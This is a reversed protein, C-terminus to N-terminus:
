HIHLLYHRYEKTVRDCPKAWRGHRLCRTPGRYIPQNQTALSALLTVTDVQMHQQWPTLHTAYM